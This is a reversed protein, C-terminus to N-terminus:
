EKRMDLMAVLKKAEGGVNELISNEAIYSITPGGVRSIIPRSAPRTRAIQALAFLAKNRDGHSPFDLQKSFAEILQTIVIESGVSDIFKLIFRSIDNRVVESPDDLYPPLAAISQAPMRAWSLLTAAAARHKADDSYELVKFLIDTKGETAFVLKEIVSHLEADTSDLIGAKVVDEHKVGKQFKAFQLSQFEALRKMLEDPLYVKQFSDESRFKLRREDGSEIVDVTLFVRGGPLMVFGCKTEALLLREKVDVCRSKLAKVDNVTAATGIPVSIIKEVDQRKIHKNGLIEVGQWNGLSTQGQAFVCIPLSLLTILSIRHRVHAKQFM